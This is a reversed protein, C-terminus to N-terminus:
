MGQFLFFTTFNIKKITNQYKCLSLPCNQILFSPYIRSSQEQARLLETNAQPM